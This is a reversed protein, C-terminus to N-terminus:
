SQHLVKLESNSATIAGGTIAAIEETFRARVPANQWATYGDETDWHAVVVLRGPETDDQLLYAASAGSVELIRERLYYAVVETALEPSTHLALLSVKPM